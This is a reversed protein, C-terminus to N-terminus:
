IRLLKSNGALARENAYDIFGKYIDKEGLKITLNMNGGKDGIAKALEDIWETNRELPVVAEKGSEGLMAVTPNEIVGGEALYPIRPVYVSPLWKFPRLGLISANRIISLARNITWFPISVVNNIGRILGNVVSKFTNAIGDKIGRFVTGGRSFVDKVKSWANSFINRFFTALNSFPRKVGEWAQSAGSKIRDWLSTFINKLREIKSSLYSVTNNWKDGIWGTVNNWTNKVSDGFKRFILKWGEIGENWWNGFDEWRDKIWNIINETVLKLGAVGENWWIGLNYFFDEFWAKVEDWNKIVLIAGGILAAILLGILIPGISGTAIISGVFTLIKGLIPLLFEVFSKISSIIGAIAVATKIALVIGLLISAVKVINTLDNFTEEVDKQIKNVNEMVEEAFGELDSFGSTLGGIGVELGGTDLGLAGVEGEPPKLVNMVDFGALGSLEKKLAKASKSTNDMSGAVNNFSKATNDANIALKPFEFEALNGMYDGLFPIKSLLGGLVRIVAVVYSAVNVAWQRFTDENEILFVRVNNVFTLVASSAAAFIPELYGGLIQIASLWAESISSIMKGSSTYTQAYAGFAKAGERMIINMRAQAEEQATLETRTKGLEQAYQRYETGLNGIQLIGRQVAETNGQIFRTLMEIGEVSDVGASAALDKMTLVLASVGTQVDGSRADVAELGEAMQFLGTMALSRIVKEAATGYTNAEALSIRLNDVEEATIGLNKAVTETAISIRAFAGGQTIIQKALGTIGRVTGSIAKTLLNAGIQGAILSPVLKKKVMSNSTKGLSNLEKTASALEKRLQDANAGIIVELQAIEAKTM